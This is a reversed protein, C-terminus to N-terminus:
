NSSLLFNNKEQGGGFRSPDLEEGNAFKNALSLVYKPPYQKGEFILLFSKSQRGPPINNSDIEGIAKVIHEREINSPIM